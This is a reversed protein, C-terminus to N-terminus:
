EEDAGEDEYRYGSYRDYGKYSGDERLAQVAAEDAHYYDNMM